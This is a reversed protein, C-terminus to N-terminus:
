CRVFGRHSYYDNYFPRGLINKNCPCLVDNCICGFFCPVSKKKRVVSLYQSGRRCSSNMKQM